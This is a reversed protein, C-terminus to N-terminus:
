VYIWSYDEATVRQELETTKGKPTTQVVGQFVQWVREKSRSCGRKSTAPFLSAFAEGTFKQVAKMGPTLVCARFLPVASTQKGFVCKLVCLWLKIQVVEHEEVMKPLGGALSIKSSAPWKKVSGWCACYLLSEDFMCCHLEKTVKNVKTVKQSALELAHGPLFFGFGQSMENRENELLRM